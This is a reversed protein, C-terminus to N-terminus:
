KTVSLKGMGGIGGDPMLGRLEATVQFGSGDGAITYLHYGAKHTIAGGRASASPAGIVPVTRSPGPLFAVSGVHNHGHLVLEAGVRAIMREFSPADVLNRGPPAGAVHPPHHILVVRFLGQGDLEHLLREAAAIQRRGLKGSAVFPLTPIASSLGVFAVNGRQRLFPFRGPTGDDGATWPAIAKLLGELSGEVYADHNGPVFSVRDPPGLGEMFVKATAWESPLGINAVDGTCAIHDPALNRIDAVLAALIEMDHAAKRSRRWNYYGTARKSLLDRLRPRPLPGVHPDTLHAIRFM